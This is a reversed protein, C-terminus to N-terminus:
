RYHIRLVALVPCSLRKWGRSWTAEMITFLYMFKLYILKGARLKVLQMAIYECTHREDLSHAQLVASKRQFNGDVWHATLGLLSDSNVDCSWVDTTFSIYDACKQLKAQVEARIGQVFYPIVM